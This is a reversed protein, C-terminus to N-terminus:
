SRVVPQEDKRVILEIVITFIKEVIGEYSPHVYPGGGKWSWVTPETSIGSLRRM